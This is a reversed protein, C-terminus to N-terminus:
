QSTFIINTIFNEVLLILIIIKITGDETQPASITGFRQLLDKIKKQDDM